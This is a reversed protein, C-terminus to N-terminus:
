RPRAGRTSVAALARARSEASKRRETSLDATRPVAPRDPDEAALYRSARARREWEAQRASLVGRHGPPELEREGVDSARASRGHPGRACAGDRRRCAHDLRGPRIVSGAVTVRGARPRVGFVCGALEERGSRDPWWDRPDRRSVRRLLAMLFDQASPTLRCARRRTQTPSGPVARPLPRLSRTVWWWRCWGTTTSRNRIRPPSSEAMACSWSATPSGWSRTSIIPSSSCRWAATVSLGFSRLYACRKKARLSATPEDLFARTGPFSKSLNRVALAAGTSGLPESRSGAASQVLATM